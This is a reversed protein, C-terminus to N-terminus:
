ILAAAVPGVADLQDVVREKRTVQETPKIWLVPQGNEGRKADNLDDPDPLHRDWHVVGLYSGDLGDNFGSKRNLGPGKQASSLLHSHLATGKAAQFTNEDGVLVL